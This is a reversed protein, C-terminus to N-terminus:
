KGWLKFLKYNLSVTGLLHGELSSDPSKIIEIDDGNIEAEIEKTLHIMYQCNVSIDFRDTLNFHTGIGAQVASGWRSKSIEPIDIATKKNYDFCHGAMIYPQIIKPYQREKLPYFLVSWGIHYYESRVKNNVNITIYDAFWDTNVADSMQIRFQGGTGIGSGDSDFFSGTSRGGLSFWKENTSSTQGNLFFPLLLLLLIFTNKFFIKM